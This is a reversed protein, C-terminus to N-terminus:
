EDLWDDDGDGDDDLLLSASAAADAAAKAIVAAKLTEMESRQREEKAARERSEEAARARQAAAQEQEKAVTEAYGAGCTSCLTGAGDPGDCVMDPRMDDDFECQCRCACAINAPAVSLSQFKNCEGCAVGLPTIQLPLLPPLLPSKVRRCWRLRNGDPQIAHPQRKDRHTDIVVALLMPSTVALSCNQHALSKM